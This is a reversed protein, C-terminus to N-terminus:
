DGDADSFGVRIDLAPAVEAEVLTKLASLAEAAASLRTPQSGAKPLTGDVKQVAARLRNALPNQGKGRLYTELPVVAEGPAPARAGDVVALARLTQWRAAREAESAGSADRAFQPKARGRSEAEHLPREIGQMRLQEVGGIWQNVAESMAAVTQEEDLEARAQMDFAAALAQAERAVDAAAEVAYRCESTRPKTPETWLLWELAPLGKGAVGILEMGSEGAPQQAIARQIQAPRTPTFDIRRATRREVLAGTAVTGVRDWALLAERWGRRAAQLSGSGNCYADIERTMADAAQQFDRSRPLSWGRLLGQVHDAPTYFPVAVSRWDSQAGAQSSLFLCCCTALAARVYRKLIV